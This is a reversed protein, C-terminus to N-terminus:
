FASASEHEHQARALGTPPYHGPQRPRL